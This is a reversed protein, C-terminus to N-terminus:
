AWEPREVPPASTSGSTSAAAGGGGNFPPVQTVPHWDKRGKTIVELLSNKDQYFGGSGDNKPAGKELGVRVLCTMGDFDKLELMRAARAADSKDNPDLGKASDVIAKLTALSIERAQAHGSTTGQLVFNQWFRRGKHEGEVVTFECDLMECGGDKSRKLMGGEGANGARVHLSVIVITGHPMPTFERQAPADTYDYAM